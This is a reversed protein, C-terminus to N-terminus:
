RSFVTRWLWVLAVGSEVALVAPLVSPRALWRALGLQLSAVLLTVLVIAALGALAPLHWLRPREVAAPTEPLHTLVRQRFNRPVHVDPARRLAEDLEAEFRNVPEM